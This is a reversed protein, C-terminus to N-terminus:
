WRSLHPTREMKDIEPQEDKFEDAKQRAVNLDAEVKRDEGNFKKSRWELLKTASAWTIYEDSVHRNLVGADTDVRAPSDIHLLRIQGKATDPQTQPDFYLTDGIVEWNHHAQWRDDDGGQDVDVAIINDVGAPLAYSLAGTNTIRTSYAPLKLVRYAENIAQIVQSRPYDVCVAYDDGAAVNATVDEFHFSKADADWRKILRTLGDNDGSLFFIIGDDYYGGSEDRKRDILAVKSTDSVTADGRIVDTTAEMVLLMMQALTTAM